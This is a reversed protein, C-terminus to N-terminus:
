RILTIHGSFEHGLGLMDNLKVKYIYIGNEAYHDGGKVNGVWPEELNETEFILEGWRDYIEIDYESVGVMLPLFVDNLGDENPSFANPAYFAFDEIIIFRHTDDTCGFENVVSQTIEIIGATSYEYNFSCDEVEIGDGMDMFCAISGISTDQISIVPDFISLEDPNVIFGATPKPYIYVASDVQISETVICGSASQITLKVDYHGPQTYTHSPNMEDSSNGDGFQWSYVLPITSESQNEFDVLLPPCGEAGEISLNVVPNPILRLSDTYSRDCGNEIIRLEIIQYGPAPFEIDQVLIEDSMGPNVGDEFTWIVNSNEFESGEAILDVSHGDFCQPDPVYFRPALLTQIDFSKEDTSPCGEESFATLTVTYEGSSPYTYTPTELNSVDNDTGIEGFDWSYNVANESLNGFTYTFAGCFTDQDEIIAVPIEPISVVATAVEECDNAVVTLTIEIDGPPGLYIDIPSFENSSSPNANPGFDWSYTAEPDEIQGGATFDFTAESGLCGSNVSIIAPSLEPFAAFSAFATDACPWGPNAILRVEYYGTDPYTYIPSELSSVDLSTNPDGFDWEFFTGNESSNSFQFTLGDCFIEQDPIAAIIVPDCEVVNFQFDRNSRTLEIGNRFERVCIGIVYQGPATATGSLFGTQPDITFNPDATIPDNFSFGAAYTVNVFPPGLPPTPAPEDPTGGHFPTCFEYVLSDGDPDFASHDFFFEANNCLAVPPFSVFRPSSNLQNTLNTGPIQTTFTAGTNEPLFLNVITPNRCCRQYVLHYDFPSEPLVIVTEYIAREVCLNPPLVFCPNDLVVPVFEVDTQDLNIFISEFLAGSQYIGISASPDFDTNNTNSNPDCDRYVKLTILYENNGWAEYYMEGGVIHTAFVSTLGLLIFVATHISKLM